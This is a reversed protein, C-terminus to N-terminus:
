RRRMADVDVEVAYRAFRGRLVPADGPSASRRRSTALLLGAEDYVIEMARGGLARLYRM